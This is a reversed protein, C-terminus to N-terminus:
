RGPSEPMLIGSLIRWAGILSPRRLKPSRSIPQRRSVTGLDEALQIREAVSLRSFDFETTRIANTEGVITKRQLRKGQVALAATLPARLADAGRRLEVGSYLSPALGIDCSERSRENSSRTPM